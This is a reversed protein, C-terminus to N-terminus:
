ASVGSGGKPELAAAVGLTFMGFVLGTALWVTRGGRRKLQGVEACPSAFLFWRVLLFAGLFVVGGALPQLDEPLLLTALVLPLFPLMCVVQLIMGIILWKFFALAGSDAAVRDVFGERLKRIM